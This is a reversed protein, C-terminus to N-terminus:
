PDCAGIQISVVAKAGSITKNFFILWRYDTYVTIPTTSTRNEFISIKELNEETFNESIAIANFENVNIAGELNLTPVLCKNKYVVTESINDINLRYKNKLEVIM